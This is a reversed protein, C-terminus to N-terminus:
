LTIGVFVPEAELLIGFKDLVTDRIERALIILECTTGGGRNVLALAHKRSIGVPGKQYGKHFGAQEILWAAPIKLQDGDIFHPISDESKEKQSQLFQNQLLLFKQQTIMPNKFFSGVSCSETDDTDLLMGKNRRLQLIAKHVQGLPPKSGINIQLAQALEKYCVPSAYNRKILKVTVGLIIYRSNNRFISNRYNFDCEAVNITKIQKQKRDYVRVDQLVQSIDSGYAGVNQVPAAGVTGPIGSLMEIGSLSADVMQAVFDALSEGAAVYVQTEESSSYTTIGQLCNRIVLGSFGNDSIVVNSGGGLILVPEGIADSNNISEIIDNETQASLFKLARGGLKLTTLPALPVDFAIPM